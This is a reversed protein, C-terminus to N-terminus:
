RLAKGLAAVVHEQEDETMQPYLPLLLSSDSAKETV